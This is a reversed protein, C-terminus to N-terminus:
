FDDPSVRERLQKKGRSLRSMVTGIPVELQEAIERYNLEKFYYLVLVSRFEEPLSSLAAQLSDTDVPEAEVTMVPEGVAELAVEGHTGRDRMRRRYLNRATMFLWARVHDEDRLTDLKRQADLFTQQTIDEADHAAGSLRYAFRFISEYHQQILTSIEV